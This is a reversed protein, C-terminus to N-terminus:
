AAVGILRVKGAVIGSKLTFGILSMFAEARIYPWCAPLFLHKQQSPLWIAVSKM